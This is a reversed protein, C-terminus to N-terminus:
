LGLYEAILHIAEDYNAIWKEEFVVRKANEFAQWGGDRDIAASKLRTIIEIPLLITNTGGEGTDLAAPRSGAPTMM